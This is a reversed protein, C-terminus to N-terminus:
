QGTGIEKVTQNIANALVWSGLLLFAGIISYTIAKKATKLQEANGQAKVFLFGSYIIALAVIPVGIVLVIYLIAEILSPIDDVKSLPNNIKTDINLNTSPDGVKVDYSFVSSISLAFVFIIVFSYKAVTLMIQYKKNKLFSM